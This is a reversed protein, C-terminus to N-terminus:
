GDRVGDRGAGALVTNLYRELGAADATVEVSYLKVSGDNGWVLLSTVGLSKGSVLVERPSLM